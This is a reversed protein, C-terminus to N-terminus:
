APGQVMRLAPRYLFPVWYVPTEKSGKREFFGAETLQEAIVSAREQPCNWLKALSKLNQQTKERELIDLYPKLTPNEACLTQDYRAKSVAPLAARIAARDFLAELPPDNNGLEYLRLQEDRTELLLHILERPATRKSGDATRSLMWDLSSPKAKGVDVQAPFVRYFLQTQLEANELVQNKTVSYLTCIEANHVLRRVLINLLSKYDWTLTLSRTVHSAERFGARTIKSWIDDRLFIKVDVNSLSQFDLYVRFLARLANGELDGSDAFAVDLRDLILWITVKIRQYAANLDNLLEDVSHFGQARQEETPQALTIKGNIEFGTNPDKVAGEITPLHKRLYDLVSKLRCILTANPALLGNATLAEIVRNARDDNIHNVDANLRFYNALLALFYLKWLNRFEEESAPPDAALDRFAPTGRPNEAAIFVIRRGLRLVDKQAVLLSYLASKGAGKAGFVVDVEGNFIKRWQETEVFYSKLGENEDEAVRSGFSASILAEKRKSM